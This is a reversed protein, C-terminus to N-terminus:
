VLEIKWNSKTAKLDEWAQTLSGIITTGSTSISEEFGNDVAVKSLKLTLENSLLGNPDLANIINTISEKTLETSEKFDVNKKFYGIITINQLAICNTFWSTYTQNYADIDLSVITILKKCNSFVSGAAATDSIKIEVVTNTINSWAFMNSSSSSKIPYQPTYTNETWGFNFFANAYNTRNGNQQYTNWWTKKYEEAGAESGESYGESYGEEKGKALGINYCDETNSSLESSKIKLPQKLIIDCSGNGKTYISIQDESIKKIVCTFQERIIDDVFEFIWGLGGVLEDFRPPGSITFEKKVNDFAYYSFTVTGVYSEKEDLHIGEIIEEESSESTYGRNIITEYEGKIEKITNCADQYHELPIIALKNENM